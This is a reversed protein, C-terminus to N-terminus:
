PQRTSPDEAMDMVLKRLYKLNFPKAIYGAAGLEECKHREDASSMASVMIVPIARTKENAKLHQVVEHGNMFPMMIDLLILDPQEQSALRLAEQGTDALLVRIGMKGLNLEVLRLLLNDDDVVLVSVNM